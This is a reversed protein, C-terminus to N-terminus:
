LYPTSFSKFSSNGTISLRSCANSFNDSEADDSSLSPMSNVKFDNSFASSLNPILGM